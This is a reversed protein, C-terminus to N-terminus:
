WATDPEAVDLQRDLANGIVISPKGGNKGPRRKYGIEARIGALRVLSAVRNPCNTEGLEVLDDQRKPHEHVQWKREL